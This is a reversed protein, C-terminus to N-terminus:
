AANSYRDQSIYAQNPNRKPCFLWKGFVDEVMGTTNTSRTIYVKVTALYDNNVLRFGYGVVIGIDGTKVHQVRDSLYFM